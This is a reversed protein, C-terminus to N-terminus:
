YNTSLREEQEGGARWISINGRSLTIYMLNKSLFLM